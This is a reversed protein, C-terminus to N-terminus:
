QRNESIIEKLPAFIVPASALISEGDRWGDPSEFGSVQGGAEMVLLAGAAIDWANLKSEFYGDFRGAAVYALDLAASGLRRIAQVERMVDTFTQLFQDSRSGYPFGTALVANRLLRTDNVHIKEENLYAGGGKFASFTEEQMIGHVVGLVMEGKVELAVSVSFIPIGQLFNTTGDLPDIIWVLDSRDNVVTDEETLFTAEPLIAGLERVLIAEASKDVYSVLSNRAKEEIQSKTVKGYEQRIFDAAKHVPSMTQDLISKWNLETM